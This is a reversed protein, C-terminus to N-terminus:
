IIRDRLERRVRATCKICDEQHIDHAVSCGILAGIFVGVAMGIVFWLM